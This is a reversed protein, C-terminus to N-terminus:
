SAPLCARQSRSAPGRTPRPQSATRAPQCAPQGALQSAVQSTAPVSVQQGSPQSSPERGGGWEGCGGIEINGGAGGIEINVTRRTGQAVGLCGRVMGEGVRGGRGSLMSIPPAPPQAGM